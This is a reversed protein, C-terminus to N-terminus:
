AVHRVRRTAACPTPRPRSGLCGLSCTSATRMAQEMEATPPLVKCSRSISQVGPRVTRAAGGYTGSGELGATWGLEARGECTRDGRPTRWGDRGAGAVSGSRPLSVETADGPGPRAGPPSRRSPQPDARSPSMRGDCQGGPEFGAYPLGPEEGRPGVSHEQRCGSPERPPPEFVGRSWMASRTSTEPRGPSPRLRERAVAPGAPPRKSSRAFPGHFWTPSPLPLSSQM